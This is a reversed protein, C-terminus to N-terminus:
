RRKARRRLASLCVVLLLTAPLSPASTRGLECSLSEHRAPEESEPEGPAGASGDGPSTESPTELSPREGAQQFALEFLDTFSAALMFTNRSEPALCDGSIRSYVGTLAGTEMSLAPGGSDGFCATGGAVTFSRAPTIASPNAQTAEHGVDIVRVDSLERREILAGATKVGYGVLMVTEGVVTARASRLLPYSPREIPTDLVIAAVDDHCADGSQTIFTAAGHAVAAGVPATGTYIEIRAPEIKGGFLGSGHGDEQLVGAGSCVFKGPQVLTVCHKATIVVRPSVLTGSCDDFQGDAHNARIFVVADREASSIKGAILSSQERSTELEDPTPASCALSQFCAVLTAIRAAGPSGFLKRFCSGSSAIM